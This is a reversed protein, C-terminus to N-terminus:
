MTCDISPANSSSSSREQQLPLAFYGLAGSGTIPTSTALLTALMVLVARMRMVDGTRARM